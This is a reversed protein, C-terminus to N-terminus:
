CTMVALISAKNALRPSLQAGGPFCQLHKSFQTKDLITFWEKCLLWLVSTIKAVFEVEPATSCQM